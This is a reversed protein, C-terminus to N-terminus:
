ATQQAVDISSHALKTSFEDYSKELLGIAKTLHVPTIHAYRITMKTDKHGMLEALMYIDLGM